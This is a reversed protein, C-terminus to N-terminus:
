GKALEDAIFQSIQAQATEAPSMALVQGIALKIEIRAVVAKSVSKGKASRGPRLTCLLAVDAEPKWYSPTTKM